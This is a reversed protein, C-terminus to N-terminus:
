LRTLNFWSGGDHISCAPSGLSARRDDGARHHHDAWTNLGGAVGPRMDRPQDRHPHRRPRSIVPKIGPRPHPEGYRGMRRRWSALRCCMAMNFWIRADTPALAALANLTEYGM